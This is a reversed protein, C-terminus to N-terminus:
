DLPGQLSPDDYPTLYFDPVSKVPKDDLPLGRARRQERERHKSKIRSVTQPSLAWSAGIKRLSRTDTAIAEREADTLTKIYHHQSARARLHRVAYQSMGYRAAIQHTPEDSMLVEASIAPNSLNIGNARAESRWRQITRETVAFLEALSKDSRCDPNLAVYRIREAETLSNPDPWHINCVVIDNM